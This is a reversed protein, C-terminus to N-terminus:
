DSSIGRAWGRCPFLRFYINICCASFRKIKRSDLWSLSNHHSSSFFPHKDVSVHIECLTQTREFSKKKKPQKNLQFEFLLCKLM